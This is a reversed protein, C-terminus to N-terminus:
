QLTKLQEAFNEVEAKWFACSADAMRLDAAARVSAIQARQLETTAEQYKTRLTSEATVPRFHATLRKLLNM